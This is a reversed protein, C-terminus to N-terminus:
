SGPSAGSGLTLSGACATTVPAASDPVLAAGVLTVGALPAVGAAALDSVSLITVGHVPFCGADPGLIDGIGLMPLFFHAVSRDTAATNASLAPEDGRASVRTPEVAGVRRHVGLRLRRPSTPGLPERRAAAFQEAEERWRLHRSLPLPQQAFAIHLGDRLDAFQELRPRKSQGGPLLKQRFVPRSSKSTERLAESRFSGRPSVKDDITRSSVSARLM